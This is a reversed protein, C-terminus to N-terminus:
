VTQKVGNLNQQAQSTAAAYATQIETDVVGEAFRYPGEVRRKTRADLKTYTIKKAWDAGYVGNGDNPTDVQEGYNKLENGKAYTARYKKISLESIPTDNQLNNSTVAIEIGKVMEAIANKVSPLAGAQGQGAVSPIIFKDENATTGRYYTLTNNSASEIALKKVEMAFPNKSDTLNKCFTNAEEDTEFPLTITAFHEINFQYVINESPAWNMPSTQPTSFEKFNTENIIKYSGPYELRIMDDVKPIAFLKQMQADDEGGFIKTEKGVGGHKQKRTQPDDAGLEEQDFDKYKVKKYYEVIAKRSEIANEMIEDKDSADPKGFAYCAEGDDFKVVWMIYKGEEPPIISVSNEDATLNLKKNWDAYRPIIDKKQIAMAMEKAELTSSGVVRLIEGNALKTYYYQTNKAMEEAIKDKVKKQKEWPTAVFDLWRNPNIRTKLWRKEAREHVAGMWGMIMAPPCVLFGIILSPLANVLGKLGHQSTGPTQGHSSQANYVSAVHGEDIHEVYKAVDETGYSETLSRLLAKDESSIQEVVPDQINMCFYRFDAYKSQPFVRQVRAAIQRATHADYIKCNFMTRRAPLKCENNRTIVFEVKRDHDTIRLGEGTMAYDIGRKQQPVMMALKPDYVFKPM